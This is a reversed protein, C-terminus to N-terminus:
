AIQTLLDRLMIHSSSPVLKLKLKGWNQSGRLTDSEPADDLSSESEQTTPVEVKINYASYRRKLLHETTQMAQLMNSDSGKRIPGHNHITDPSSGPVLKTKLKGWNSSARKISKRSESTMCHEYNKLQQRLITIV